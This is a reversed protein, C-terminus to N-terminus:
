PLYILGEVAYKDKGPERNKLAEDPMFGPEMLCGTMFAKGSITEFITFESQAVHNDQLEFINRWIPWKGQLWVAVSGRTNAVSKSFGAPLINIGLAEFSMDNRADKTLRFGYPVAATDFGVIGYPSIGPVPEYVGLELEARPLWSDLFKVPAVKGVGSTGTRGMCNCGMVNDM